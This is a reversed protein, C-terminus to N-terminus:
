RAASWRHPLPQLTSESPLLMGAFEVSHVFSVSESRSEASDCCRLMSGTENAGSTSTTRECSALEHSRAVVYMTDQAPLETSSATCVTLRCPGVVVAPLEAPM